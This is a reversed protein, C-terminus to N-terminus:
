WLRLCVGPVINWLLDPEAPIGFPYGAKLDLTVYHTEWFEPKLLFIRNCAGNKCQGLEQWLFWNLERGKSTRWHESVPGFMLWLGIKEEDVCLGHRPALLSLEAGEALKISSMHKARNINKHWTLFTKAIGSCFTHWPCQRSVAPHLEHCPGCTDPRYWCVKPQCSSFPLGTSSVPVKQSVWGIWAAVQAMQTGKQTAAGPRYRCCGQESWM